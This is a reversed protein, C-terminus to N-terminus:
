QPRVPLAIARSVAAPEVRNLGGNTGLWYTGDPDETMFKVEQGALGEKTTLTHWTGNGLVAIGDYESGVWMRGSRDEYITRTAEGALGDKVTLNSWSGNRGIVAGGINAFGAAVWVAGDRTQILSRASMHLLPNSDTVMYWGTSNLLYLGGHTPSVCGVWLNGERDEFLADATVPVPGQTPVLNTWRKGDFSYVGEVTGAVLTGDNREIFSLTRTFPVRDDPAVTTWSGGAYRVLGGDHAIWITGHRDRIISRVYSFQPPTGPLPIDGGSIRDILVVGDKGGTWVTNNEIFITYVEGPPRIIQWGAPANKVQSYGLLFQLGFIIAIILLIGALMTVLTLVLRKKDAAPM